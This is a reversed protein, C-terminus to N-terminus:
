ISLQKNNVSKQNITKSELSETHRYTSLRSIMPLLLHRFHASFNLLYRPFKMDLFINNHDATLRQGRLLRDTYM